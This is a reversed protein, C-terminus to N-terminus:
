QGAGEILSARGTDLDYVAGVVRLSGDAVMPALLPQASRLKAAVAAVNDRIAADLANGAAGKAQAINPTIAKVVDGIHGPVTAGSLAADVAGCSEHGLVVILRAGLKVVAFEISGLATDDVVNGAVRVVFVDGLGQDFVVEPPVRSDSCGVVVAFPKQGKALEERRQTSQHPRQPVGDVFRKNGDLLRDLASPEAAVSPAGVDARVFAPLGWAGIQVCLSLAVIRSLM